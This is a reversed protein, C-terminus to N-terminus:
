SKVSLSFRGKSPSQKNRGKGEQDENFADNVGGTAGKGGWNPKISLKSSDAGEPGSGPVLHRIPKGSIFLKRIEDMDPMGSNGSPQVVSTKKLLDLGPLAPADDDEDDSDSLEGESRDAKKEEVDPGGLLGPLVAQSKGPLTPKWPGSGDSSRDTFSYNIEWPQKTEGKETTPADHSYSPKSDSGKRIKSFEQEWKREEEAYMSKHEKGQEQSMGGTLNMAVELEDVPSTPDPNKRQQQVSGQISLGSVLEKLAGFQPGSLLKQIAPPLAGGQTQPVPVPATSTEPKSVTASPTYSPPAYYGSVPAGFKALRKRALNTSLVESHQTLDINTPVTARGTEPDIKGKFEINDLDLKVKEQSDEDSGRRRPIKLPIDTDMEEIKEGKQEVLSEFKGNSTGELLDKELPIIKPQNLLEASSSPPPVMIPVQASTSGTSTTAAVSKTENM